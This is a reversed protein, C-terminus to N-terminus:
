WPVQIYFKDRYARPSIQTHQKFLRSFSSVDKYGIAWTIKDISDRTTELREKAADIRVRQDDIQVAEFCCALGENLWAPLMGPM